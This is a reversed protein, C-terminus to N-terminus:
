RRVGLRASYRYTGGNRDRAEVVVLYTGNAVFRGAQNRLDWIIPCVRPNAGVFVVNGVMDYIVVNTEVATANNPLVISIEAQESVPNVAFRIGYHKNSREFNTISTSGDGCTGLLVWQSEVFNNATTGAGANEWLKGNHVVKYTGAVGMLAFNSTFSSYLPIDECDVIKECSCDGGYEGCDDCINDPDCKACGIDNCDECDPNFPEWKFGNTTAFTHAASGNVGRITINSRTLGHFANLPINAINTISAPITITRLATCGVFAYQGINILGSPLIVEELRTLGWFAYNLMRNVGAPMPMTITTPARLQGAGHEVELERRDGGYFPWNTGRAPGQQHQREPGAGVAIARSIAAACVHCFTPADTYRMICNQHPRAWNTGGGGFQFVGVNDIGSLASWKPNNLNSWATRNAFFENGLPNGANNHMNIWDYEDALFSFRPSHAFEHAQLGAKAGYNMTAVAIGGGAGAWRTSNMFLITQNSHPVDRGVLADARAYGVNTFYIQNSSFFFGQFYTNGAVQWDNGFDSSASAVFIAHINIMDKYDNFPYMELFDQTWKQAFEFFTNQQGATFGDGLITLVWKESDLARDGHITRVESAPINRQEISRLRQQEADDIQPPIILPPIPPMRNVQAQLLTPLILLLLFASLKTLKRIM